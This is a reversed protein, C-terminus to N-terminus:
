GTRPCRGSKGKLQLPELEEVTIADRVLRYTAAGIVVEGPQARQELRAAVNVM